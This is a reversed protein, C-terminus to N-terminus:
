AASELGTLCSTLPVTISGGKTNGAGVYVTGLRSKKDTERFEYIHCINTKEETWREKKGEKQRYKERKYGKEGKLCNFHFPFSLLNNNKMKKEFFFTEFSFLFFKLGDKELVSKGRKIFINKLM